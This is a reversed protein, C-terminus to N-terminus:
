SLVRFQIRRAWGHPAEMVPNEGDTTREVGDHESTSMEIGESSSPTVLLRQEQPTALQNEIFVLPFPLPIEEHFDGREFGPICRPATGM